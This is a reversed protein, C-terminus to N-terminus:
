ANLISIERAMAAARSKGKGGVARATQRIVDDLTMLGDVMNAAKADQAGFVRGQGMNDRVTAVDVNRGRAVARTFAGYYTDIRSQMHARAEDSLPGYPNGEVKYKGASVLTTNVGEKQLAQSYDSHAAFVGISGAEGGPTIYFESAQSGIWYAASAALSNAVTVVRKQGRANFIENGLEQVGFVSGGPSDMDIVIAGVSDDALAARFGASFRQMSMLGSGSVDDVASTRQVCVGYFPLVAVAGGGARQTTDARRAEVAQADARVSALVEPSAPINASWRAVVQAIATLRDPMLAWPTSLFEAVILSHNM